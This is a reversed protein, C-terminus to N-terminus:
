AATPPGSPVKVAPAPAAPAGAPCGLGIAADRAKKLGALDFTRPKANPARRVEFRGAELVPELDVVVLGNSPNGTPTRDIMSRPLTRPWNGLARQPPQGPLNFLARSTNAGRGLDVVVTDDYVSLGRGAIVCHTQGTIRDNSVTITWPAQSYARVEVDHPHFLGFLGALAAVAMM